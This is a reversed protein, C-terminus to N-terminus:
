IKLRGQEGERMYRVCEILFKEKYRMEECHVTWDDTTMNGAKDWFDYVLWHSVYALKSAIDEPTHSKVYEQIKHPDPNKM